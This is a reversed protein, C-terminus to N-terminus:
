PEQQSTTNGKTKSAAKKKSSKKKGAAECEIANTYGQAEWRHTVRKPNWRGDVKDRVDDVEIPVQSGADVNGEIEFAASAEGRELERKRAKVAREADEKSAFPERFVFATEGDGEEITEDRTKDRDFYRAEVKGHKPRSKWSVRYKLINEGTAVRLAPLESGSVTKGEAKSTCVLNQDKVTALHDHKEALRTAFAMDSEEQQAEFHLPINRLDDSIRAKWNNQKALYDFVEGYTKYQPPQFSKSRREKTGQKAGASTGHLIVKQPWGEVDIQDIEFEGERVGQEGRYGGVARVVAGLEPLEIQGDRDDLEIMLKDGEGGDEDTIEASIILDAWNASVEVEGRYLSFFPERM